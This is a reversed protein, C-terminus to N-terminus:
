HFLEAFFAESVGVDPLFGVQRMFSVIDVVIKAERDPGLARTM